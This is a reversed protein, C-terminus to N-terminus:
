SMQFALYRWHVNTYKHLWWLSLCIKCLGLLGVIFIVASCFPHVLLIERECMCVCITMNIIFNRKGYKYFYIGPCYIIWLHMEWYAFPPCLQFFIFLFFFWALVSMVWLMKVWPWLKTEILKTKGFIHYMRTNLINPCPSNPNWLFDIDLGFDTWTDCLLQSRKATPFFVFWLDQRMFFPRTLFLPSIWSISQHHHYKINSQTTTIHGPLSWSSLETSRGTFCINM